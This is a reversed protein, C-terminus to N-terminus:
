ERGDHKDDDRDKVQTMGRFVNVTDKARLPKDKPSVMALARILETSKQSDSSIRHRILPMHAACLRLKQNHKSMEGGGSTRTTTMCPPPLM